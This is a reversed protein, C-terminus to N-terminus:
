FLSRGLFTEHECIMCFEKQLEIAIIAVVIKNVM